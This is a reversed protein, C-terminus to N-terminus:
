VANKHKRRARYPIYLPDDNCASFQVREERIGRLQKIKNAFSLLDSKTAYIDRSLRYVEGVFDLYVDKKIDYNPLDLFAGQLGENTMIYTSYVVSGDLCEFTVNKYHRAFQLDARHYYAMLHNTFLRGKQLMSLYVFVPCRM